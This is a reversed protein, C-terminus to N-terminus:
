VVLWALGSVVAAVGLTAGVTRGLRRNGLAVAMGAKVLTNVAVAALVVQAGVQPNLGANEVLDATSLTIADVDNIGSVAGVINLSAESARDLLAKSAFIIVGYLAGFQLASTLTLPNTLELNPDRGAKSQSRRWWVFAAGEVLLFLLGLPLLLEEGLDPEIVFAEVLVRGYMLGSAAIIGASLANTLAAPSTKSMRAFGLTVATSSVLGGLFGTLSLGRSGLLRLSVYGVLGIGAVFIVMLWIKRPNIADFPGFDENPILPLVVATITAFQLVAKIDEDSFRRSVSHFVEKSKLLYAMGVAVALAAVWQEDWALAGVIFTVFAAAETTTGWDATRNGVGVYTVILLVGFVLAAVLFASSGFRDGLYGAGAGWAGYLAFTRVGAYTDAEVPDEQDGRVQRELGIIAGLGAAVVFATVITGTEDM